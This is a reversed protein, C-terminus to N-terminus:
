PTAVADILYGAAIGAIYREWPEFYWAPDLGRDYQLTWTVRSTHADIPEWAVTASRWVLFHTMHSNDSLARWRVLGPRSEELELVLDGAKPEIGDVRMEGGRMRIIWRITGEDIHVATPRPFGARLELPMVRDFRPPEFVARQIEDASASVIKTAKVTEDRNLSLFGTVGEMSALLITLVVVGSNVTRTPENPHRRRLATMTAAVGVAVAYFIPASMVICLVGEGLFFLSVLLGVTVAKCAVGTASRPSVFVVVVIALLAPIGVFLAATQDLRQIFILKYAVSGIAVAAITASVRVRAPTLNDLASSSQVVGDDDVLSQSWSWALLFAPPWLLWFLLIVTGQAPPVLFAIFAAVVASVRIWFTGPVAFLANFAGIAFILPSAWSGLSEVQSRTGIIAAALLLIVIGLKIIL